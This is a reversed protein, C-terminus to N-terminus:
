RLASPLSIFPGSDDLVYTNIVSESTVSLVRRHKRDLEHFNKIM